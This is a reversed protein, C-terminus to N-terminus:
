TAARTLRIEFRTGSDDSETALEGNSRNVIWRVLWLGIGSSHRLSSEEKAQLAEIEHQPIGSGNDEFVLTVSDEECETRIDITPADDTDNHAIANEVLERIALHFRPHFEVVVDEVASRIDVEEAYRSCPIAEDVSERLSGTITDDYTIIEEITGAKEAQNLLHASIENIGAAYEGTRDDGREEIITSYGNIVTLDNRINHRFIRAFIEKLLNLEEEREKLSTVDSLTIVEVASGRGYRMLSTRVTFHRTDGNRELHISETAGIQREALDDPFITEAFEGVIQEGFLQRGFRNADLIRNKSNVVVIADNANEFSQDRTVPIAKLLGHKRISYAFVLGSFGYVTSTLDYYIPVFGAVKIVTSGVLTSFIILLYLTQRRQLGTTRMAEGVFMGAALFVLFYGYLQILVVNLLGGPQSFHLIGASDVYYDSPFALHFPNFWSVIFFVLAPVFLVAAFRRQVTTKFVFEYALLFMSVAAVSITPWFFNALVRTITPSRAFTFSAYLLAWMGGAGMSVLFWVVGPKRREDYLLYVNVLSPVVGVLMVMVAVDRTLWDVM